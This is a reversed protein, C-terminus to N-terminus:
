APDYPWAQDKSFTKIEAARTETFRIKTALWLTMCETTINQKFFPWKPFTFIDMNKKFREINNKNRAQLFFMTWKKPSPPTNPSPQFFNM